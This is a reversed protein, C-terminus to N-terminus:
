IEQADKLGCERAEKIDKDYAKMAEKICRRIMKTQEKVPVTEIGLLLSSLLEGHKHLKVNISM